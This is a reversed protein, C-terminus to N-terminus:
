KRLTIFANVSKACKIIKKETIKSNKLICMIKMCLVFEITSFM